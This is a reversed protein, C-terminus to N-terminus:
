ITPWLSGLNGVANVMLLADPYTTRISVLATIADTGNTYTKDWVLDPADLKNPQRSLALVHFGPNAGKYTTSGVSIDGTSADLRVPIITQLPETSTTQGPSPHANFLCVFAAFLTTSVRGTRGRINSSITNVSNSRTYHQHIRQHQRYTRFV